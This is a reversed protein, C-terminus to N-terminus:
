AVYQDTGHRKAEFLQMGRSCLVVKAILAIGGYPGYVATGCLDEVPRGPPEM